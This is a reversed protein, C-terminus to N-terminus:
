ENRWCCLGCSVLAVMARRLTQWLTNSDYSKGENGDTGNSNSQHLSLAALVLRCTLRGRPMRICAHLVRSGIEDVKVVVAHSSWTHGSFVSVTSPQREIYVSILVQSM